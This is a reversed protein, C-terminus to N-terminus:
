HTCRDFIALDAGTEGSGAVSALTLRVSLFCYLATTLGGEVELSRGFHATPSTSVSHDTAAKEEAEGAVRVM